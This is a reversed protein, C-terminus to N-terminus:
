FKSIGIERFNIKYDNVCNKKQMFIIYLFWPNWQNKGRFHQVQSLLNENRAKRVEIILLLFFWSIIHIFLLGMNGKCTKLIKYLISM